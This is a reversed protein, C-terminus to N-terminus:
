KKGKTVDQLIYHNIAQLGTEPDRYVVFNCALKKLFENRLFAILKTLDQTANPKVITQMLPTIIKTIDGTFNFVLEQNLSEKLEDGANKQETESNSKYDIVLLSGAEIGLILDQPFISFTPFVFGEDKLAFIVRHLGEPAGINIFGILKKGDKQLLEVKKVIDSIKAYGATQLSDPYVLPVILGGNEIFGYTDHLFTLASDKKEGQNYGYGLLVLVYEDKQPIRTTENDANNQTNSFAVDNKQNKLCSTCLISLFFILLYASINSQRM